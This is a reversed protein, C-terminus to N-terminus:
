SVVVKNGKVNCLYANNQMYAIVYTESLKSNTFCDNKKSKIIEFLMCELFYRVKAVAILVVSM